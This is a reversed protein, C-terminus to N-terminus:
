VFVTGEVKCVARVEARTFKHGNKQDSCRFDGRVSQPAGQLSTLHNSVCSFDGGVSQPAGQLSTLQNDFCDFDGAVYQPAGQM